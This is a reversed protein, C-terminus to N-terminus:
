GDLGAGVTGLGKYEEEHAKAAKRREQDEEEFLEYDDEGLESTEDWLKEFEPDHEWVIPADNEGPSTQSVAPIIPTSSTFPIAWISERSRKHRERDEEIRIEIQRKDLRPADRSYTTSSQPKAESSPVPLPDTASENGRSQLCEELEQLTQSTLFGKTHLANLVKRVVKINAAGSGDEPTVSDVVQLIDRQMMRVYNDRGERRATEIFHEIFYMINARVNM